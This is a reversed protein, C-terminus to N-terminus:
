LWNTVCIEAFLFRDYEFEVMICGLVMATFLCMFLLMDCFRKFIMSVCLCVYIM